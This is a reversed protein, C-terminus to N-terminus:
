FFLHYIFLPSCFFFFFISYSFAFFCAYYLHVIM